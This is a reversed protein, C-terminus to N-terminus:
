YQPVFYMINTPLIGNLIQLTENTETIEAGNANYYKFNLVVHNSGFGIGGGLQHVRNHANMIGIKLNREKGSQYLVTKDSEIFAATNLTGSSNKTAYVESPLVADGTKWKANRLDGQLDFGFVVFPGSEKYDNNLIYDSTKNNSDGTSLISSVWEDDYEDSANDHYDYMVDAFVKMKFNNFLAVPAKFGAFLYYFKMPDNKHEENTIYPLLIVKKLHVLAGVDAVEDSPNDPDSQTIKDGEFYNVNDADCIEEIKDYYIYIDKSNYPFLTTEWINTNDAFYGSEDYKLTGNEIELNALNEVLEPIVIHYGKYKEFAQVDADSCKNASIPVYVEQEDIEEYIRNHANSSNVINTDGILTYAIFYAVQWLYERTLGINQVSKELGEDSMGALAMQAFNANSFTTKLSTNKNFNIHSDVDSLRVDSYSAYIYKLAGAMYETLTEQSFSSGADEFLQVVKWKYNPVGDTGDLIIDTNYYAYSFENNEKVVELRYGGNMANTYKLHTKGGNISDKEESNNIVRGFGITQSSGYGDISINEPKVDSPGYFNYLSSVIYDAMTTFQRNMLTQFSVNVNTYKDYFTTNTIDPNEYVAIAGMMFENIKNAAVKDKNENSGSSGSGSGTNGSNGSNGSGSNGSGTNGDGSGASGGTGGTGPSETQSDNTEIRSGMNLCGSFTVFSFLCLLLITCLKFWRSKKGKKKM